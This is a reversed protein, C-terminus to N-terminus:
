KVVPELDRCQQNEPAYPFGAELGIGSRARELAAEPQWGTECADGAGCSFLHAESLDLDDGNLHHVDPGRHRRVDRVGRLVRVSGLGPRADRAGENWDWSTPPPGADALM